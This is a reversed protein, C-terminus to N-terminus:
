KESKDKGLFKALLEEACADAAENFKVKLLAGNNAELEELSPSTKRDKWTVGCKARWVIKSNDLDILWSFAGFSLQYHSWYDPDIGYITGPFPFLKIESRFGIAFGYGFKGNLKSIKIDYPNNYVTHDIKLGPDAELSSLVHDKIRIAPDEVSYDIVMKNGATAWERTGVGLVGKNERVFVPGPTYLVVRILPQKKLHILVEPDMKIEEMQPACGYVLLIIGSLFLM